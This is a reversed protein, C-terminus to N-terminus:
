EGRPKRHYALLAGRVRMLAKFLVIECEQLAAEARTEFPPQLPLQKAHDLAMKAGVEIKDLHPTMTAWWQELSMPM